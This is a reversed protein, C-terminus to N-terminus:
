ISFYCCRSKSFDKNTAVFMKTGDPKFEIAHPLKMNTSCALQTGDGDTFSRTATSIDFPKSLSYQVLHM